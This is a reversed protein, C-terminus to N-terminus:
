AIRIYTYNLTAQNIQSTENIKIAFSLSYSTVSTVYYTGTASQFYPSSQGFVRRFGVNGLSTITDVFAFVQTTGIPNRIIANFTIAYTGANPISITGITTTTAITTTTQVAPTVINGLQTTLLPSIYGTAPQLIINKGTGITLAGNVQVTNGTNGLTLTGTTTGTLLNCTTTNVTTTATGVNFSGTNSTNSHISVTSSCSPASCISVAGSRAVGDGGAIFLQGTSQGSGIYIPGTTPTVGDLRNQRIRLTGINIVNISSSFDTNGIKITRGGTVVATGIAIAPDADTNKASGTDIRIPGVGASNGINIVGTATRSAGTGLNLIGNTQSAGISIDETSPVIANITNTAISNSATISSM